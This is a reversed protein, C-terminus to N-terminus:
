CHEMLGLTGAQGKLQPHSSNRLQGIASGTHMEGEFRRQPAQVSLSQSVQVDQKNCAILLPVGRLTDSDLIKDFAAWSEHLREQDSSDIVYIM